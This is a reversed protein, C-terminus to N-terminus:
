GETTAQDYENWFSEIDHDMAKRMFEKVVDKSFLESDCYQSITVALATKETEGAILKTVYSNMLWSVQEKEDVM